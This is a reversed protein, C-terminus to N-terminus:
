CERFRDSMQKLFKQYLGTEIQLGKFQPSTLKAKANLFEKELDESLKKNVEANARIQVLSKSCFDRMAVLYTFEHVVGHHPSTSQYITEAEGERSIEGALSSTQGLSDSYKQLHTSDKTESKIKDNTLVTQNQECSTLFVPIFFLTVVYLYKM